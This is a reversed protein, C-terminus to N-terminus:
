KEENESVAIETLSGSVNEETLKYLKNKYRIRYLSLHDTITAKHKGTYARKFAEIKTMNYPREEVFNDNTRLAKELAVIQERCHVYWESNKFSGRLYQHLITEHLHGYRLIQFEGQFEIMPCYRDRSGYTGASFTQGVKYYQTDNFRAGFVYCWVAEPPRPKSTKGKRQKPVRLINAFLKTNGRVKDPVEIVVYSPLASSSSASNNESM